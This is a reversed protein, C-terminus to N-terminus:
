KKIDEGFISIKGKSPKIIGLLTKILTTKGSGNPGLLVVKEDKLEFNMESIIKTEKFEVTLDRIELM